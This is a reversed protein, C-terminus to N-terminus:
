WRGDSGLWMWSIKRKTHSAQLMINQGTQERMGFSENGVAITHVKPLVEAHTLLDTGDALMGGALSAAISLWLVAASHCFNGKFHQSRLHRLQLFIGTCSLAPRLSCHGRTSHM